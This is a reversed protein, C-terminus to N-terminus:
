ELALTLIHKPYNKKELVAIYFYLGEMLISM